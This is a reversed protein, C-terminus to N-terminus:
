YTWEENTSDHDDSLVDHFVISAFAEKRRAIEIFRKSMRLVVMNDINGHDLHIRHADVLLNAASFM